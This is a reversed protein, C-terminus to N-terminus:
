MKLRPNNSYRRAYKDFPILPLEVCNISVSTNKEKFIIDKGMIMEGEKTSSVIIVTGGISSINNEKALDLITLTMLQAELMHPKNKEKGRFLELTALLDKSVSHKNVRDGYVLVEGWEAKELTVKKTSVSLYVGFVLSDSYDELNTIETEIANKIYHPILPISSLELNEIVTMGAEKKMKENIVKWVPDNKILEEMKAGNREKDKVSKQNFLTVLEQLKKPDIIKNRANTVGSFILAVDGNLNGMEIWENLIEEFFYESSKYFERIDISLTKIKNFGIYLKKYLFTAFAIDGAVAVVITNDRSHIARDLLPLIKLGDDIFSDDGRTIRTDASLYVRDSLNIGM